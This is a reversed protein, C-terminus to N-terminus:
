KNRSAKVGEPPSEVITVKSTALLDATSTGKMTDWVSFYLRANYEGPKFFESDLTDLDDIKGDPSIFSELELAINQAGVADWDKKKDEEVPRLVVKLQLFSRKPFVDPIVAVHGVLKVKKGSATTLAGWDNKWCANM